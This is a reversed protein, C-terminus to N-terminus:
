DKAKEEDEEVKRTTEEILLLIKDGCRFKDVKWQARDELPVIYAAYSGMYSEGTHYDFYYRDPQGDIEGIVALGHKLKLSRKTKLQAQKEPKSALLTFTGEVISKNKSFWTGFLYDITCHKVVQM